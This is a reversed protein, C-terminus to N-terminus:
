VDGNTSIKENEYPAVVKRYLELITCCLCGIVIALTLYNKGSGKIFGLCLSYLVYTLEGANNIRDNTEGIHYRFKHRYIKKIYPM